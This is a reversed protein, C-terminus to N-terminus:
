RPLNSAPGAAPTRGSKEVPIGPRPKTWKGARPSPPPLPNDAQPATPSQGSWQDGDRPPDAHFSCTLGRGKTAQDRPALACTLQGPSAPRHPRPSETRGQVPRAPNTPCLYLSAVGGGTGPSCLWSAPAVPWSRDLWTFNRTVPFTQLSPTTRQDWVRVRDTTSEEEGCNCVNWTGDGQVRGWSSLLPRAM